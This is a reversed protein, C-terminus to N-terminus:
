NSRNTIIRLHKPQPNQYPVQKIEIISKTTPNFIMDM